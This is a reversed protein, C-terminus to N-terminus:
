SSSASILFALMVLGLVIGAAGCIIAALAQGPNTSEGRRSRGRGIGGFIVALVGLLIAAPWMCFGIASLIGLVLGATALGNGAPARTGSWGYSGPGVAPPIPYGPGPVPATPYGGHGQSGGPYGYPVQGPGDPAIPPPPVPAGQLMAAPPVFPAGASAGEKPPAFPSGSGAAPSAPTGLAAFPNPPEAASPPAFPNPPEAASPAAFRGPSEAASPAAFPSPSDAASPAAFPNPPETAPRAAGPDAWAPPPSAEPFATVTRQDHASPPVPAPVGPGDMAVTNGPGSHPAGPRPSSDSAAGRTASTESRPAWGGDLDWVGTDAAAPEPWSVVAGGGAGTASGGGAAGRGEAAGGDAAARGGLGPAATEAPRGDRSAADGPKAGSGAANQPAEDSM